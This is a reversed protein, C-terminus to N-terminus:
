KFRDSSKRRDLCRWLFVMVEKNQLGSKKSCCNLWLGCRWERLVAEVV